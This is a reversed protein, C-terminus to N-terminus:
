NDEEFDFEINDEVVDNLIERIALARVVEDSELIDKNDPKERVVEIALELESETITHYFSTFSVDVTIDKSM